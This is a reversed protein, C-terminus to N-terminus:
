KNKLGKVLKENQKVSDIEKIVMGTECDWKHTIEEEAWAEGGCERCEMLLCNDKVSPVVDFCIKNILRITRDLM